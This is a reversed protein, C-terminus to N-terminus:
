LDIVFVGKREGLDEVLDIIVVRRMTGGGEFEDDKKRPPPPPYLPLQLPLPEPGRDILM